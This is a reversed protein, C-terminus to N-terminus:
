KKGESKDTYYKNWYKVDAVKSRREDDAFIEALQSCMNVVSIQLNAKDFQIDQNNVLISHNGLMNVKRSHYDFFTQVTLPYKESLTNFVDTYISQLNDYYKMTLLHLTETCRVIEEKEDGTMPVIRIGAKTLQSKLAESFDGTDTIVVNAIHQIRSFRDKFNLLDTQAFYSMSPNIACFVNLLGCCSFVGKFQSLEMQLKKDVEGLHTRRAAESKASEMRQMIDASIKHLHNFLKGGEKDAPYNAPRFFFGKYWDDKHILTANVSGENAVHYEADSLMRSGVDNILQRITGNYQCVAYLRKFRNGLEKILLAENSAGSNRMLISRLDAEENHLYGGNEGQLCYIIEEVHSCVNNGDGGLVSVMKKYKPQLVCVAYKAPIFQKTIFRKYTHLQVVVMDPSIILRKINNPTWENVKNSYHVASEAISYCYREPSVDSKSSSNVPM